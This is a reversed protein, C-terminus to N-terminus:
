GSIGIMDHALRRTGNCPVLKAANASMTLLGCPDALLGQVTDILQYQLTAGFSLLKAAGASALRTAIERQNDALTFMLTPVGLFCREWASSGAAGIALDCGALLEAISDCAVRLEVKHKLGLLLQRTEAVWPSAHGLVLCIVVDSPLGCEDLALVVERSLNDKDVGGFNVFIRRLDSATRRAFSRERWVDFEPRLLVNVVGCRLECGPNVLGQYDAQKRGFTQDLLVDADHRRNALDDIVLLNLCGGHLAREWREDLAYHDVVLWEPAIKRVSLAQLTQEADKHWPLGLWQGYSCGEGADKPDTSLVPLLLVEYGRQQILSILDGPQARCVFFCTSGNVRLADALTLCRMVHGAGIELSSDVRFVVHMKWLDAM